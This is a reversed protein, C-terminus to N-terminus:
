EGEVRRLRALAEAQIKRGQATLPQLFRAQYWVSMAEARYPPLVRVEWLIGSCGLPISRTASALVSADGDTHEWLRM